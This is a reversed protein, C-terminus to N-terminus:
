EPAVMITLIGSYSDNSVSNIDAETLLIGISANNTAGMNCGPNDTFANQLNALPTGSTVNFSGTGDNYTVSYPLEDVGNSLTFADASGSGNLTAQYTGPSNRYVCFNMTQQLDGTGSYPPFVINGLNNIQILPDINITLTLLLDAEQNGGTGGTAEMIFDAFYTGASVATLNSEPVTVTLQANNGAPCNNEAGTKDQATWINPSLPESIGTVQDTFTVSAQISQTTDGQNVLQFPANELGGVNNRFRMQYPAAPANPNGDTSIVCISFTQSIGGVTSWSGLDVNRDPTVLNNAMRMAALTDASGIM